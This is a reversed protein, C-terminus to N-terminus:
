ENELNKKTKFNFLYSYIVICVYKIWILRSFNCNQSYNNNHNELTSRIQVITRNVKRTKNVVNLINWDKTRANWKNSKSFNKRPSLEGTACNLGKVRDHRILNEFCSCALYSVAYSVKTSQILSFPSTLNLHKVISNLKKVDDIIITYNQSSFIIEMSKIAIILFGSVRNIAPFSLINSIVHSILLRYKM